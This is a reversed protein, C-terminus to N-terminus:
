GLNPGIMAQVLFKYRDKGVKESSKLAHKCGDAIERSWQLVEKENYETKEDLIEKVVKDMVKKADNPRFKDKFLPRIQYTSEAKQGDKKSKSM